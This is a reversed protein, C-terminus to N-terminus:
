REHEEGQARLTADFDQWQTLASMGNPSVGVVVQRAGARLLVIKHRAGLAVVQEIKLVAAAGSGGARRQLWRWVLLAAVVLALVLILSGMMRLWEETGIAQAM